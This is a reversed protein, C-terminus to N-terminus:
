PHDQIQHVYGFTHLVMIHWVVTLLALHNCMGVAIILEINKNRAIGGM